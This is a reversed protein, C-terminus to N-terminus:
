GKVKKVKKKTDAATERFQRLDASFLVSHAWGAHGGYLGRFHDGIEAYVKDTVTKYKKLHPLYKDAAIQFMHTDVPVSSPQDLSMLLICDAVKPGVGSLKLLESKAESYPMGRVTELYTRGGLDKLQQATKAIYGARYGFGLGRLDSELAPGREVLAEIEPFAYYCKSGPESGEDGEPTVVTAVPKGYKTCMNEVMGSIRQINNNSSCIFAFINEVPDQRLMRVGSFKVAVDKFVPDVHAWEEYFKVLDVNLQFYDRLVQEELQQKKQKATPSPPLTKYFLTDDNQTFVWVKGALVGIYQKPDRRFLSWRFSQGCKLVIELNLQSKACKLTKWAM